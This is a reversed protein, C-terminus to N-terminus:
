VVSKSFHNHNIKITGQGQPFLQVKETNTKRRKRDGSVARAKWSAGADWSPRFVRSKWVDTSLLKEFAPNLDFMRVYLILPRLKVNSQCIKFPMQKSLITAMEKLTYEVKGGTTEKDSRQSPRHSINDSRFSCHCASCFFAATRMRVCILMCVAHRNGGQRRQWTISGDRHCAVVYCRSQAGLVLRSSWLSLSNPSVALCPCCSARWCGAANDHFGSSFDVAKIKKWVDLSHDLAVVYLIM